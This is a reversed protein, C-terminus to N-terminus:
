RMNLSMSSHSDTKELAAVLEDRFEKVRTDYLRSFNNRDINAPWYRNCFFAGEQTYGRAIGIGKGLFLLGAKMVSFCQESQDFGIYQLPPRENKRISFDHDRKWVFSPSFIMAANDEVAGEETLSPRFIELLMHHPMKKQEEGVKNFASDLRQCLEEQLPSSVPSYAKAYEDCIALYNDYAALLPKIDYHEQQEKIQQSFQEQNGTLELFMAWMYSDYNKFALKLPSIYEPSAPGYLFKPDFGQPLQDPDIIQTNSYHIAHQFILDPNAKALKEAEAYDAHAVRDLLRYIDLPPFQKKCNEFKERAEPNDTIYKEFIALMRTHNIELAYQLPSTYKFYSKSQVLDPASEKNATPLNFCYNVPSFIAGPNEEVIEEAKDYNGEVVCNMLAYTDGFFSNRRFFSFKTCTKALTQVTKLDLPINEIYREMPLELLPFIDSQGTM